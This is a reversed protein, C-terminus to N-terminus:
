IKFNGNFVSNWVASKQSLGSNYSLYDILGSHEQAKQMIAFYNLNTSSPYFDEIGLPDPIPQLIYRSLAKLINTFEIEFDISYLKQCHQTVYMELYISSIGLRNYHSWAKVLRILGKLKGNLRQNQKDILANYYEPCTYKYGGRANSIAFYEYEGSKGCTFAPIIEYVPRTAFVVKVSPGDIVVRTNTYRGNLRTHIARLVNQFNRSGSLSLFYDADSIGRLGTGFKFSGTQFFRLVDSASLASELSKRHSAANSRETATPVLNREYRTLVSSDIHELYPLM